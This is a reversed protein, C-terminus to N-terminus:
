VICLVRTCMNVGKSSEVVLQDPTFLLSPAEDLTTGVFMYERQATHRLAWGYGSITQLTYVAYPAHQLQCPIAM